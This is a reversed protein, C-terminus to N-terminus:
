PVGVLGGSFDFDATREDKVFRRGGRMFCPQASVSATARRWICGPRSAWASAILPLSKVENHVKAHLLLPDQVRPKSCRVLEIRSQLCEVHCLVNLVDWLM